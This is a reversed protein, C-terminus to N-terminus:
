DGLTTRCADFHAQWKAATKTGVHPLYEEMTRLWGRVERKWHTVERDTPREAIKELHEQVCELHGRLHKLAEKRPTAM